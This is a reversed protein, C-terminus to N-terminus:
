RTPNIQWDNSQQQREEKWTLYAYYGCVKGLTLFNFVTSFAFVKCHYDYSSRFYLTAAWIQLCYLFYATLLDCKMKNSNKSCVCKYLSNM